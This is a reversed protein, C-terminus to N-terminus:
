FAMDDYVPTDGESGPEGMTPNSMFSHASLSVAEITLWVGNGCEPCGAFVTLAPKGSPTLTASVERQRAVHDSISWTQECDPCRIDIRGNIRNKFIMRMDM